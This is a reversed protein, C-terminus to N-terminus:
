CVTQFGLSRQSMQCHFSLVDSTQDLKYYERMFLLYEVGNREETISILSTDTLPGTQGSEYSSITVYEFPRFSELSGGSKSNRASCSMIVRALDFRVAPNPTWNLKVRYLKKTRQNIHVNPSM